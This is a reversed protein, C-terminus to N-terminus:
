SAKIKNHRCFRIYIYIYIYICPTDVFHGFHLNAEVDSIGCFKPYKKCGPTILLRRTYRPSFIIKGLLNMSGPPHKKDNLKLIAQVCFHCGSIPINNM